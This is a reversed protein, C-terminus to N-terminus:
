DNRPYDIFKKNLFNYCIFFTKLLFFRMIIDITIMQSMMIIPHQIIYTLGLESIYIAKINKMGNTTKTFRIMALM